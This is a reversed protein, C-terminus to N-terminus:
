YSLCIKAVSEEKGLVTRCFTVYPSFFASYYAFIFSLFRKLLAQLLKAFNHAIAVLGFAIKVKPLSRVNFRKFGKNHKINGFVPEPEIKRQAYTRQGEPTSLLAQSQSSLRKFNHSVEITRKGKGKHCVAHLPCTHCNKAQYVHIEKQYATGTKEIRHYRKEMRQGMPCVFFDLDPNYFLHQTSFPNRDKKKSGVYPIYAKVTQEELYQYNEESAYGADAIVDPMRHYQKEFQALHAKLCTTDAPTQEITFHTIIQNETSIQVNYCPKLQGNKMADDKTRMFTADPDTKSYSNRQGCIALQQEYKQLRPLQEQSLKKFSKQDTKSLTGVRNSQNIQQIREQILALDIDTNEPVIGQDDSYIQAEIGGLVEKIQALLKAKNKEVSKRWVFSYQHADAEIKTGDVFVKELSVLGADHLLEVVQTFLTEIVTKLKEGRFRNITRFDPKLEGCMWLMGINEHMFNEIKRCSFVNNLYAYFLIKLMLKPPYSSTGGGKYTQLLAEPLELRDIIDSLLRVRHNQPVYDALSRSFLESQNYQYSKFIPKM